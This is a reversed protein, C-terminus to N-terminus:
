SVVAEEVEILEPRKGGLKTQLIQRCRFLRSKVANINLGTQACTEEISLGEVLRMEFIQRYAPTLQDVAEALDKRDALGELNLDRTPFDMPMADADNKHVVKDDLSYAYRRRETSHSRIYMLAENMAIRTLWTAFASDGKWGTPKNRVQWLRIFVGNTLFEAIDPEHIYRKIAATVRAAYHSHIENFAEHDGTQMRRYLQVIEVQPVQQRQRSGSASVLITGM